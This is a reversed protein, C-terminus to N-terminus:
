KVNRQNENVIVHLSSFFIITDDARKNQKCSQANYKNNLLKIIYKYM